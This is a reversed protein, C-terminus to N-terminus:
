NNYLQYDWSKFVYVGTMTRRGNVIDTYPFIEITPAVSVGYRDTWDATPIYDIGFNAEDTEARTYVLFGTGDKSVGMYVFLQRYDYLEDYSAPIDEPYFTRSELIYQIREFDEKNAPIIKFVRDVYGM